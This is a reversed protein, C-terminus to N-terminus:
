VIHIIPTKMVQIKGYKSMASKIFAKIKLNKKREGASNINNNNNNNNSM